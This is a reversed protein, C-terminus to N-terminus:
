AARAQCALECWYQIGVLLIKDNFDYNPAHLSATDGNGLWIYSGPVQKLMYAFDEGGMSPPLERRVKESSAGGAAQAALASSSADNITAITVTECGLQGQVGHAKCISRLQNDMQKVLQRCVKDSFYRITGKIAVRAPLVNYNEGGRMATISLVASALPDLNRSVLTQAITVFHSAAVLADTGLHPMAAHGGEGRIEIDFFDVAAMVEASTVAFVGVPLGPWNHLGFVRQMPFQKFLGADIMKAAGKGEEEAPQFIFYVRGALREKHQALFNAAGLLMTTHGDHGCAHMIGENASRHRFQNQERIPLADMDARLGIAPEGRKARPPDLWAVVGGALKKHAIRAARLHKCVFALTKSEQGSLEPHRHLHHRWELYIKRQQRLESLLNM